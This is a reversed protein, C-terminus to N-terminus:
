KMQYYLTVLYKFIALDVETLSMITDISYPNFSQDIGAKLKIYDDKINSLIQAITGAIIAAVGIAISKLISSFFGLILSFFFWYLSAEGLEKAKREYDSSIERFIKRNEPHSLFLDLFISSYTSNMAAYIYELKGTNLAL